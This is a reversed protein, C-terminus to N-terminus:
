PAAVARHSQAPQRKPSIPAHCSSFESCTSTGSIGSLPFRNKFVYISDIFRKDIFNEKVFLAFILRRLMSSSRAFKVCFPRAIEARALSKGSDANGRCRSYACYLSSVGTCLQPSVGGPDRTGPPAGHRHHRHALPLEAPKLNQQLNLRTTM